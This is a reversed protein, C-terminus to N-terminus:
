PLEEYESLDGYYGSGAPANTDPDSDPFFVVAGYEPSSPNAYDPSYDLEGECGYGPYMAEGVYKARVM